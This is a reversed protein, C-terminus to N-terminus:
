HINKNIHGALATYCSLESIDRDSTM